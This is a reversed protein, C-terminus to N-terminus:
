MNKYLRNYNNKCYSKLIVSLKYYLIISNKVPATMNIYTNINHTTLLKLLLYNM